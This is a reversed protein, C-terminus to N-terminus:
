DDCRFSVFRSSADIDLNTRGAIRKRDMAMKVAVTKIQRLRPIRASTRGDEAKVFPPLMVANPVGSTSFKSVSAEVPVPMAHVSLVVM